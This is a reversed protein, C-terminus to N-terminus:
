CDPRIIQNFLEIDLDGNELKQKIKTMSILDKNNREICDEKEFMIMMQEAFYTSM